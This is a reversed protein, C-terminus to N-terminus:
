PLCSVLVVRSACPLNLGTGGTDITMLFVTADENDRFTTIGGARAAHSM